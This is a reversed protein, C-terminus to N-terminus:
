TARLTIKLRLVMLRACLSISLALSAGFMSQQEHVITGLDRFIENLEHVGSEIELIEGEREEILAEQFALESEPVGEAHQQEQLLHQRELDVSSV